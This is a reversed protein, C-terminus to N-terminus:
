PHLHLVFAVSLFRGRDVVTKDQGFFLQNWAADVGLSLASSAPIVYALGAVVSTGSDSVEEFAVGNRTLERKAFARGGGARLDLNGPGLRGRFPRVRLTFARTVLFDDRHAGTADPPGGERAVGGTEFGLQLRDTLGKALGIRGHPGGSAEPNPREPQFWAVGRGIGVEVLWNRAWFGREGRQEAFPGPPLERSVALSGYHHRGDKEGAIERSRRIVSYTVRWDKFRASAGYRLDYVGRQLGVSPDNGFFRGEIYENRLFYRGDVGALLGIEFNGRQRNSDEAEYATFPAAGMPMGTMRWGVRVTADAVPAVQVTGLTFGLGQTLDLYHTGYRRHHAYRLNLGVDTGIQHDWGKPIRHELLAHLGSQAPGALSPPGLFGANAELSHRVNGDTRVMDIRTGGYLYGAFPRDRPDPEFTTIVRPTFLNQGFV